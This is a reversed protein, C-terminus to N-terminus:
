AFLLEKERRTLRELLGPGRAPEPQEAPIPPALVIETESGAGALESAEAPAAEHRGPLAPPHVLGPAEVPAVGADPPDAAIEKPRMEPPPTREDGLAEAAAIALELEGFRRAANAAWEDGSHSAHLATRLRAASEAIARVAAPLADVAPHPLSAPAEPREVRAELRSLAALVLDTDAARNRRAYESLFWRGRATEMVADAIADYDDPEAGGSTM